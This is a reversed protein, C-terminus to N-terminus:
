RHEAQIRTTLAKHRATIWTIKRALPGKRASKPLSKALSLELSCLRKTISDEVVEVLGAFLESVPRDFVVAYGIAVLLPPVSELREQRSIPGDKDYGLILALERQSLGTEKRHSYLYSELRKSM